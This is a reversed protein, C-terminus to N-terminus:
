ALADAGTNERGTAIISGGKPVVNIVATPAGANDSGHKTAAFLVAIVIGVIATGVSGSCGGADTVSACGNGFFSRAM